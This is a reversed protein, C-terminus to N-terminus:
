EYRLEEIISMKKMFLIPAISSIIIEVAAISSYLIFSNLDFNIDIYVGIKNLIGSVNYIFLLYAFFAIIICIFAMIISEYVLVMKKKSKNMGVSDYIAFIRKRQIFSIVINNTIGIVALIIAIISLSDIISLFSKAMAQDSERKETELAFSQVKDSIESNKIEKYYEEINVGNKLKLSISNPYVIKFDNKMNDINIIAFSGLYAMKANFSGAIKYTYEDGEDSIM